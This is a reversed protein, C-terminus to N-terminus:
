YKDFLNERRGHSCSLRYFFPRCYNIVVRRRESKLGNIIARERSKLFVNFIVCLFVYWTYWRNLCTLTLNCHINHTEKQRRTQLDVGGAAEFFVVRKWLHGFHSLFLWRTVNALTWDELDRICETHRLFCQSNAKSELVKLESQLYVRTGGRYPTM